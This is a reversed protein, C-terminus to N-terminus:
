YLIMEFVIYHKLKYKEGWDKPPIGENTLQCYFLAGPYNPNEYPLTYVLLPFNEGIKVKHEAGNSLSRMSYKDSVTTKYKKTIGFRQDYNFSIRMSDPDSKEVLVTIVLSDRSLGPIPTNSLDTVTDTRSVKGNWYEKSLVAFKKGMIKAGSIKITFYDINKFNLLNQLQIDNVGYKVVLKATDNEQGYTTMSLIIGFVFAIKKM